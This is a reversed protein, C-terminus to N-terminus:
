TTPVMLIWVLSGNGPHIRTSIVSSPGPMGSSMRGRMKSGRKVVFDPWTRKPIPIPINDAPKIAVWVM